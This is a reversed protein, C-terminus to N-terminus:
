KNFLKVAGKLDGDQLKASFDELDLNEPLIKDLIGRGGQASKYEKYIVKLHNYFENKNFLNECAIIFQPLSYKKILRSSEEDPAIGYFVHLFTANFQAKEEIPNKAAIYQEYIVEPAVVYVEDNVKLTSTLEQLEKTISM